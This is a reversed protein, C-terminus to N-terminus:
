GDQSVQGSRKALAPIQASGWGPRDPSRHATPRLSRPPPPAATRPSGCSRSRRTRPQATTESLSGAARARCRVRRGCGPCRGTSTPDPVAPTVRVARVATLLADHMMVARGDELDSRATFAGSVKRAAAVVRRFRARFHPEDAYEPRIVKLAVRRGAASRALYVVGMGGAGLRREVTFEGIRRM